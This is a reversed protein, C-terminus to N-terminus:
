NHLLFGCGVHIHHHACQSVDFLSAKGDSTFAIGTEDHVYDKNSHFSRQQQSEDGLTADAGPSTKPIADAGPSTKPVFYSGVSSFFVEYLPQCLALSSWISQASASIHSDNPASLAVLQLWLGCSLQM